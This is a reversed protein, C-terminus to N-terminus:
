CCGIRESYVTYFMSADKRVRSYNFTLYPNHKESLKSDLCDSIYEVVARFCDMDQASDRFLKFIRTAMTSVPVDCYKNYQLAIVLGELRPIVVDDPMAKAPKFSQKPEGKERVPVPEFTRGSESM